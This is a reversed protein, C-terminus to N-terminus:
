TSAFRVVGPESLLERGRAISQLNIAMSLIVLINRNRRNVEALASEMSQQEAWGDKESSGM